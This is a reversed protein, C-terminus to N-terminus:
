DTADAYELRLLKRLYPVLLMKDTNPISTWVEEARNLGKATPKISNPLQEILGLAILEAVAVQVEKNSM